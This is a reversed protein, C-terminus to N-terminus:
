AVFPPTDGEATLPLRDAAWQQLGGDLNHVEFGVQALQAAAFGSRNGSRCVMVLPRERELEDLRAGLQELPIHTSGEIHGATWEEPTRVDVLQFEARRADVTKADM